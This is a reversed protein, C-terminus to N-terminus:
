PQDDDDLEHEEVVVEGDVITLKYCEKMTSREPGDITKSKVMTCVFVVSRNSTFKLTQGVKDETWYLGGNNVVWKWETGGRPNTVEDWLYVVLKGRVWLPPEYGETIGKLDHDFFGEKIKGDEIVCRQPPDVLGWVGNSDATDEQAQASLALLAVLLFLSIRKM